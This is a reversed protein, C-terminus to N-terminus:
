FEARGHFAVGYEWFEEDTVERSRMIVGHFWRCEGNPLHLGVLLREAHIEQPCIFSLGGQSLSRSYVEFSIPEAGPAPIRITARGRFQARQHQRQRAFHADMRLELQDLTDLVREAARQETASYEAISKVNM